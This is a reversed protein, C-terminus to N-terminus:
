DVRLENRHGATLTEGFFSGLDTTQYKYQSLKDEYLALGRPLYQHIGIVRPISAFEPHPIIKCPFRDQMDLISLFDVLLITVSRQLRAELADNPRASDVGM